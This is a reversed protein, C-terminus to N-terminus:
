AVRLQMLMQCCLPALLFLGIRALQFLPLFFRVVIVLWFLLRVWEGSLHIGGEDLSIPSM